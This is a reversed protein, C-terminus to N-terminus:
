DQPRSGKRVECKSATPKNRIAHAFALLGIILMLVTLIASSRNSTGVLGCGNEDGDPPGGYYQVTVDDIEYFSEGSGTYRFAIWFAEQFDTKEFMNSTMENWESLEGDINEFRYWISLRGTQETFDYYDVQIIECFRCYIRPSVLASETDEDGGSVRACRGTKDPDTCDAGEWALGNEETYVTWGSPSFEGEFDEYILRHLVDGEPVDPDEYSADAFVTSPLFLFLCVAMSFIMCKM